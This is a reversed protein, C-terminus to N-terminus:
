AGTRRPMSMSWLRRLMSAAALRLVACWLSVRRFSFCFFLSGVWVGWFWALLFFVCQCLVYGDRLAEAFLRREKEEGGSAVGNGLGVVNVQTTSSGMAGSRTWIREMRALARLRVEVEDFDKPDLSSKNVQSPPKLMEKCLFSTASRILERHEPNAPSALSTSSANYLRTQYSPSFNRQTPSVARSRPPAM